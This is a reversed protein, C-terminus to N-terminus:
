AAKGPLEEVDDRGRSDAPDLGSRGPAGAARLVGAGARALGQKMPGWELAGTSLLYAFPVLLVLLFVGMLILGNVSLERMVTAFPYLFIIEVDLVIFAMAVLYFKVPFREAPESEPVIGCEYPAEKASTARKPGLFTSAIFSLAAFLAVLIIMTLIPLYASM